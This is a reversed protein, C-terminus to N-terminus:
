NNTLQEYIEELLDVEELNLGIEKTGEHAVIKRFSNFKEIWTLALNQTRVGEGLDVSFKSQFTEYDDTEKDTEKGWNKVILKKYDLVQFYDTWVYTKDRIGLNHNEIEDDNM